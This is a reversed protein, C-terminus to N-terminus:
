MAPSHAQHCATCAQGGAHDRSNVQKFWRPKATDAEHCRACLSASEPRVPKGSYPDAVHAAAPGHCAECSIGKHKGKERVELIDSHCDGCAAQGAYRLPHRRADDLASARYHGYEGFTAPVIAARLIVFLLLGILFVAAPRILHAAESWKDRM